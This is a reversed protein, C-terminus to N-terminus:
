LEVSHKKCLMLSSKEVELRDRDLQLREKEVELRESYLELKAREIELLESTLCSPVEPKKCTCQLKLTSYDWKNGSCTITRSAKPDTPEYGASCQFTATDGNSYALKNSDPTLVRNHKESPKECQGSFVECLPERGDWGSDRCQRAPNGLLRYGENCQATATAGFLIGEDGEPSYTYRGNPFDPLAGCRIETCNPPPSNWRNRECRLSASGVMKFGPNCAFEITSKYGYPPRGYIRKANPVHPPDCSVKICEPPSPQFTGSSSCSVISDGFRTYGANCVYIVAQGYDYQELLPEDPEGNPIEPPPPCKVVECVPERGDWGSDRCHRAPYGLLRYGENCQATATAGFLIGEDGEPSYTYRGNPFDPLPGCTKKICEPPSHQFTGSTSCSITSDGFHTYGATCVYTVEQGYEYQELLPEEPQGNPIKPPPPCKVVECVPERGDWGSARCRRVTHLLLRYGENCQARATATAGFLVGKAREPSYTYRGNPFDPLPGCRIETCNPPPSNWGNRECVLSGSGVMKFGPNCAFEITSRYRYPPRGYIRKANPVHPPDCSVKICEPPSPQFTGSSSCSVISDGFRTYGANCVYIVAQGYDYQELLPEDPEGNPIEPPPPCKVVECVPERGDWGSDRCHRAPYGLLRYGENCQATATAGFLIGEDGEPSYTYRGNPFDPLPGCTKKTCQLALTSHDWKNGSCTITRYSKPNVPRYGVSCQFTVTDGDSYTPKISEPALVRQDEARPVECQAKIKAVNLLCMLFIILNHRNSTM